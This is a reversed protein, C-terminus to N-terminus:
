KEYVRHHGCEECTPIYDVMIAENVTVEADCNKCYYKTKNNCNAITLIITILVIFFIIYKKM